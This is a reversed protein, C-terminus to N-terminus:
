WSHAVEPVVVEQAKSLRLSSPGTQLHAHSIIRTRFVHLRLQKQRSSLKFFISLVSNNRQGGEGWEGGGGGVCVCVRMERIMITM